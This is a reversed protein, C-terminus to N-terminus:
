AVFLRVVANLLSRMATPPQLGARDLPVGWARAYESLIRVESRDVEGDCLCMSRMAAMLRAPDAPPGLEQPRWVRYAEEPIGPAGWAKLTRALFAREAPRIVGDAVMVSVLARAVDEPEAAPSAAPSAAAPSAAASGAPSAAPGAPPPGQAVRAERLRDDVGTGAAAQPFLFAIVDFSTEVREGRIVRAAVEGPALGQMNVATFVAVDPEGEGRAWAALAAEVEAADGFRRGRATPRGGETRHGCLRCAAEVPGGPEVWELVAGEVGCDPCDVLVQWAAM